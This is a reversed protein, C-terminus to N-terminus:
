VEDLRFIANGETGGADGRSVGKAVPSLPGPQVRVLLKRTPISLGSWDAKAPLYRFPLTRLMAAESLCEVLQTVPGYILAMRSWTIFRTACDCLEYSGDSM